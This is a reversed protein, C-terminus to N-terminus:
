KILLFINDEMTDNFIYIFFDKFIIINKYSDFRIRLFWYDYKYKKLCLFNLKLALSKAYLRSLSHIIKTIQQFAAFIFSDNISYLNILDSKIRSLYKPCTVAKDWSVLSRVLKRTCECLFCLHATGQIYKCIILMISWDTANDIWRVYLWCYSVKSLDMHYIGVDLM